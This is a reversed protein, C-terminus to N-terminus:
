GTHPVIDLLTTRPREGTPVRLTDTGEGTMVASIELGQGTGLCACNGEALFEQSQLGAKFHACSKSNYVGSRHAATLRGM